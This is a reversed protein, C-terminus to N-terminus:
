PRFVGSTAGVLRRVRELYAVEDPAQGARQAEWMIQGLSEMLAHEVEHQDALRAFLAHCLATIGPPRDAGIQERIAVHLAMHLYPNSENAATSFDKDISVRSSVVPHYEPHESVVDALIRELPEFAEGVKAKKWASSFMARMQGRDPSFM